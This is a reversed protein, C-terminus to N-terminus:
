GGRPRGGSSPPPPRVPKGADTPTGTEPRARPEPAPTEPPPAEAGKTPRGAPPRVPAPAARDGSAEAPKSAASALRARRVFLARLEAFEERSYAGEAARQELRALAQHLKALLGPDSSAAARDAAPDDLRARLRAFEAPDVRGSAAKREIEDLVQEATSPARTEAPAGEGRKEPAPVPPPAAAIARARQIMQERLAAYDARTYAGEKARAELRDLTQMLKRYTENGESAVQGSAGTNAARALAIWEDRVRQFDERTAGGAAVRQELAELANQLRVQVDGVAAAPAPAVGGQAARARRVIQARLDAYEERSYVGEGARRELRELSQMMKRYTEDGAPDGAQPAPIAARLVDFDAKTARGAAARAELADLAAESGAPQAVPADPRQAARQGPGTAAAPGAARVSGASLVVPERAQSSGAGANSGARRLAQIRATEGELDEGVRQGAALLKQRYYLLFEERSWGGDGDQDAAKFEVTPVPVAAAERDTLRGDGDADAAQLTALARALSNAPAAGQRAQLAFSSGAILACLPLTLYLPQM